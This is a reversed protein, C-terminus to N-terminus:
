RRLRCTATIGNEIEIQRIVDHSDVVEQGVFVVGVGALLSPREM